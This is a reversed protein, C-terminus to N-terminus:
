DFFIKFRIVDFYGQVGSKVMLPFYQHHFRDIDASQRGNFPLHFRVKVEFDM